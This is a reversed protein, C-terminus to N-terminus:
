ITSVTGLEPGRNSQYVKDIHDMISDGNAAKPRPCQYKIPEILDQLEAYKAYSATFISDRDTETAEYPKEADEGNESFPRKHGKKWIDNAFRENLKTVHTILKLSPFEEFVASEYSGNLACQTTAQFKSQLNGLYIRQSSERTRSPGLIQLETRCADLRKSVDSKVNPFEKKSITTLLDSLRAKLSEIGCRGSSVVQRWKPAEFFEKEQSVREAITSVKDDANRNKVVCYGLRLQNRRELLLSMMTEQTANETVLDPKTLVGMTRAGDPDASEAMKLIEQTAIDVNSPLVALIITRTNKMYSEVMNRVILMDRDTTLPPSSVRFIGPVDIVTFHEQEPGTMEIKLIDESFTQLESETDDLAPKIGM